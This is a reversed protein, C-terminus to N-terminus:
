QARVRAKPQLASKCAQAMLADVEEKSRAPVDVLELGADDLERLYERTLQARLDEFLEKPQQLGPMAAVVDFDSLNPVLNYVVSQYVSRGHLNARQQLSLGDFEQQSIWGLGVPGGFLRDRVLGYHYLSMVRGHLAAQYFWHAANNLALSADATLVDKGASLDQVFVESNLYDIAQTENLRFARMVSTAGLVAMAASDGQMAYQEVTAADVGRYADIDPGNAIVPLLRSVDQMVLPHDRLMEETLCPEDSVVQVSKAVPAEVAQPLKPADIAVAPPTAM